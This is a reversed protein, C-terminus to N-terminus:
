HRNLAKTASIETVIGKAAYILIRERWEPFKDETLKLFELVIEHREDTKPPTASLLDRTKGQWDFKDM